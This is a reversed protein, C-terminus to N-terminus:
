HRCAFMRALDTGLVVGRKRSAAKAAAITAPTVFLGATTGRVASM